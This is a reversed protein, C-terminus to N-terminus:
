VVANQTRWGPTSQRHPRGATGYSHVVVSNRNAESLSVMHVGSRRSVPGRRSRLQLQTPEASAPRRLLRKLRQQQNKSACASQPRISKARNHPPSMAHQPHHLQQEEPLSSGSQQIVGKGTGGIMRRVTEWQLFKLTYPFNFHLNDDVATSTDAV